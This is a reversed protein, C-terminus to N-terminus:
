FSRPALSLKCISTGLNRRFSAMFLCDTVYASERYCPNVIGDLPSGVIALNDPVDVISCSVVWSVACARPSQVTSSMMGEVGGKTLGMGLGEEVRRVWGVEEELCEPYIVNWVMM